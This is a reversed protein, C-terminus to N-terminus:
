TGAGSASANAESWTALLADRTAEYAGEWTHRAAWELGRERMAAAGDPDSLIRRVASAFAKADGFPVLYGTEGHRVSDCLGPVDTAVM